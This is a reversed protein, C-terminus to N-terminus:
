LETESNLRRQCLQCTSKHDCNCRLVKREFVGPDNILMIPYHAPNTLTYVNGAAEDIIDECGHIEDHTLFLILQKSEHVAKRLISRKVFGSTMGLPTDIVNPAEVESVKTLALIFALTLARRSAGNLDRDPDLTRNEPGHVIIDFERSIEARQIMARQEPDSGIMELFISNMQDSVKQLEVHAIQRYSNQLVELIDGTVDREALIREGMRKQRLLSDRKSELSKQEKTLSELQTNIASEKRLFRDRQEKSKQLTERLGQIDTDPLSDLQTELNRLERGKEDRQKKLYDRREIVAKSEQLWTTEGSAHDALLTKTDYYLDTIIGQIESSRQSDRILKQIHARRKKDELNGLELTEGCICVKAQLRDRLLPITINPIKGQDHLEDLKDFANSLVPSLLSTAISRGRFLKSHDKEAADRLGGLQKIEERVRHLDRKLKERDGKELAASIKRDISVCLDDFTVFQQKVEELKEVLTESKNEIEELKTAITKLESDGGLQKSKRNVESASKRVHKIADNIVELGLLSHIARQVRQRKTSQTAEVFSLARDGDTFFIGRLEPPLEDNIFAEPEHIPSAGTETLQFLRVTSHRRRSIHDEVDELTSRIIRYRYCSKEKMGSILRFKTLEFEVTVMIQANKGESAQWDIPHLRFSTGGDPLAVNGYLAWQLGHLITTKGSENAARIVTLSKKPDTSFDLELDRLMRFNQFNARLLKM